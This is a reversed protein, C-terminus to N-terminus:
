VWHCAALKVESVSPCGRVEIDLGNLFLYVELDKESGIVGTIRIVNTHGVLMWSWVPLLSKQENLFVTEIFM